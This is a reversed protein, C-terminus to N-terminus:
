RRRSQRSRLLSSPFSSSCESVDEQLRKFCIQLVECQRCAPEGLFDGLAGLAAVLRTAPQPQTDLSRM